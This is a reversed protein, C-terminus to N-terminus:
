DEDDAVDAPWGDATMSWGIVIEGTHDTIEWAETSEPALVYDTYISDNEFKENAAIIATDADDAVPGLWQGNVGILGNSGGLYHILEDVCGTRAVITRHAAM